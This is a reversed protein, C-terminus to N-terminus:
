ICFLDVFYIMHFVLLSLFSNGDLPLQRLCHDHLKTRSAFLSGCTPCAIPREQTHKKLHDRLKFKNGFKSQCGDWRCNIDKKETTVNSHSHVHWYFQQVNLFETTCDDWLCTLAESLEPVANRTHPDLQCGQLALKEILNAGFCKIKTHYAHYYIHRLMERQDSTEFGCDEWACTITMESDKTIIGVGGAHEAVHSLFQEMDQFLQRCLEWECILILPEDPLMAPDVKQRKSPKSSAM